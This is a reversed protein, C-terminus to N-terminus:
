APLFLAARKPGTGVDRSPDTHETRLSRDGRSDFLFEFLEVVKEEFDAGM